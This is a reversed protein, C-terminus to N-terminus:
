VLERQHLATNIAAAAEAGEAAAVIAFQVDRSADGAVYLGPVNTAEHEDTDVTGSDTFQCGLSAALGSRQRQRSVFFLAGCMLVFDDSFEIADLWGDGGVLRRVSRSEIRINNATLRQREEDSVSTDDTCLVVDDSWTTLELALAVATSGKGYAVLCRDAVEYGDCYPCQFVGRGFLDEAGVVEPLGDVVGSALLLYRALLKEGGGLHVVFGDSGAEAGIVSAQRVQVTPYKSLQDRAIRRVEAPDSGDRSLFGSMMQSSANRYEGSDVVVVQRRCRGLVLSASLGAPGAGVVVVDVTSTVEAGWRAVYAFGNRADM